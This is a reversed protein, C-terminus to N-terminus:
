PRRPFTARARYIVRRTNDKTIVPNFVSLMLFNNSSSSAVPLWLIGGINSAYAAPEWRNEVEIQFSGGVYPYTTAGTQNHIAQAGGGTSYITDPNPLVNSTNAWMRNHWRGLDTIPDDWYIHTHIARTQVETMVGSIDINQVDAVQQSYIRWEFIVKLQDDATKPVSVPNGGTDKFLQRNFMTGAASFFGLETLNGIAEAETFLRTRTKFWYTFGTGSTTAGDAFGGNSATSALDADLATQNAAPTSSGTGVHLTNILTNITIGAGIADLGGDVILNKMEGRQIVKGKRILEWRFRGELGLTIEAPDKMELTPRTNLYPAGLILGSM